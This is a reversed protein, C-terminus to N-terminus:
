TFLLECVSHYVMDVFEFEAWNTLPFSGGYKYFSMPIIKEPLAHGTIHHKSIWHTTRTRFPVFLRFVIPLCVVGIHNLRELTV